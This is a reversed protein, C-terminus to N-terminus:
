QFAKIQDIIQDSTYPKTIYATGGQMKAWVEDAKQNKSTVFVVPIAKTEGDGSLQRCAEYGDMDPMIVDMFILDPHEGKAMAVADKGNNATIVRFGADSVIDRINTLDAQSDDVVLVTNISM